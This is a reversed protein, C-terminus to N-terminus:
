RPLPRAGRCTARKGRRDTTCGARRALVPDSEAHALARIAYFSPRRTYAPDATLPDSTRLFGESAYPGTLADRETVFVMAAGADLMAPIATSMWRAQSAPGDRYGPDTQWAPDAPYGTETVWMPGTFGKDAFYRRWEGVTAGTGAARTRVHINAIDFKHLAGAGPTALMADIWARSRVNMLGGIAVQAAPDAAHIAEYSASLIQAYQQPTGYFAWGGDPENIIEFDDIVGRTHAAVLGADHAWAVPDAPPCRYSVAAQAASACDAMYWPTALLDALVRLHYRRALLMYQDVGSWDPSGSASPFVNALAVDVRIVSGRVAAAEKFMAEKAGFPDTVYLMSHVGIRDEAQSNNSAWAPTAILALSSLAAPV